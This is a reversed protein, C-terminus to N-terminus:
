YNLWKMKGVYLTQAIAIKLRFKVTNVTNGNQKTMNYVANSLNM